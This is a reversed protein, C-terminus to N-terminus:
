SASYTQQVSTLTDTAASGIAYVITVTQDRLHVAVPGIVTTDSGFPTMRVNVWESPLRINGGNPNTLDRFIRLGGAYVNLGADEAVNRVILEARGSALEPNPNWFATLDPNGTATLDAVITINEGAVLVGTGSLLPKSGPKSGHLRIAV